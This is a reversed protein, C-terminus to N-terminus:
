SIDLFDLRGLVFFEPFLHRMQVTIKCEMLFFLVYQQSSQFRLKRRWSVILKCTWPGCSVEIRHEFVCLQREYILSRASSQRPPRHGSLPSSSSVQSCKGCLSLQQQSRESVIGWVGPIAWNELFKNLSM